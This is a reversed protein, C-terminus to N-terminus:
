DLVDFDVFPFPPDVIVMPRAIFVDNVKKLRYISPSMERHPSLTSSQYRAIVLGCNLSVTPTKPQMLLANLPWAPWQLLLILNWMIYRYTQLHIRIADCRM